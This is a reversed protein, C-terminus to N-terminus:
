RGAKTRAAELAFTWRPVLSHTPAIETLIELAEQMQDAAAGPDGDRGIMRALTFQFIAVSFSREGYVLRSIEVAKEQAEIAGTLDGTAARADALSDLVNTLFPHNEPLEREAFILLEELPELSEKQRRQGRLANWLMASMQVRQEVIDKSANELPVSEYIAVALRLFEEARKPNRGHLNASGACMLALAAALSEGEGAAELEDLAALALQESEEYRGLNDYAMALAHTTYGPTRVSGIEKELERAREFLTAALPTRGLANLSMGYAVLM